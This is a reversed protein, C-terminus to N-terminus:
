RSSETGASVLSSPDEFFGLTEEWTTLAPGENYLDPRADNFFAHGAGPFVRISMNTKPDADLDALWAREDPGLFEDNDGFYVLLPVRPTGVRDWYNLISVPYYGVAREVRDSLTSVIYSVAGGFCFGLSMVKESGKAVIAAASEFDAVIDPISMAVSLDVALPVNDYGAADRSTRYYLHPAIVDHGRAALRDAISAIHRNLGFAEHVLVIPSLDPTGQVARALYAPMLGDPTPIDIWTM